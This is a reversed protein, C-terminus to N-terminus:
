LIQQIPRAQITYSAGFQFSKNWETKFKFDLINTFLILDMKLHLTMRRTIIIIILCKEYANNVRGKKDTYRCLAYRISYHRSKYSCLCVGNAGINVNCCFFTTRFRTTRRTHARAILSIPTIM